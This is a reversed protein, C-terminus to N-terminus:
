ALRQINRIAQMPPTGHLVIEEAFDKALSCGAPDIGLLECSREALAELQERVAFARAHIAKLEAYESPTLLREGILKTNGM